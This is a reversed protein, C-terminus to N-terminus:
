YVLTCENNCLLFGGFYLLKIDRMLVLLLEFTHRYGSHQHWHKGNGSNSGHWTEWFMIDIHYIMDYCLLWQIVKFLLLYINVGKNFM